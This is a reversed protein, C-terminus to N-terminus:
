PILTAMELAKPSGIGTALDYGPGVDCGGIGKVTIDRFASRTASNQYLLPNLYGLGPKGHAHRYQNVVTLLGAFVPSSASTGDVATWQTQYM